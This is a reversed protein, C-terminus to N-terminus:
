EAPYDSVTQLILHFPSKKNKEACLEARETVSSIGTLRGTRHECGGSQKNIMKEETQCYRIKNLAYRYLEVSFFHTGPVKASGKFQLTAVLKM